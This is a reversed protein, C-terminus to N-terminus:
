FSHRQFFAKSVTYFKHTQSFGWIGAGKIGVERSKTENCKKHGMRALNSMKDSEKHGWPSYGELSRQGHSEGPLFVPTPQWARRWHIKGVWPNFRCRKNRRCQGAPEKGITDGPFGKTDQPVYNYSELLLDTSLASFISFMSLSFFNM